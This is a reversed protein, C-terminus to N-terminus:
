PAPPRLKTGREQQIQHYSARAKAPIRQPLLLSDVIFFGQSCHEDGDHQQGAGDGGMGRERFRLPIRDGDVVPGGGGDERGAFIPGDGGPVEISLIIRHQPADGVPRHHLKCFLMGGAAHLPFGPQRFGKVLVPLDAAKRLVAFCLFFLQDDLGARRYFGVLIKVGFGEAEDILRPRFIAQMFHILVLLRHLQCLHPDGLQLLLVAVDARVAGPHRLGVPACLDDVAPRGGWLERRLGPQVRRRM